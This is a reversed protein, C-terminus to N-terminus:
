QPMCTYVKMCTRRSKTSTCRRTWMKVTYSQTCFRFYYIQYKASQVHLIDLLNAYNTSHHDLSLPQYRFMMYVYKSAQICHSLASVVWILNEPKSHGGIACSFSPRVNKTLTPLLLLCCGHVSSNAPTFLTLGKMRCCLGHFNKASNIADSEACVQFSLSGNNELTGSVVSDAHKSWANRLWNWCKIAM